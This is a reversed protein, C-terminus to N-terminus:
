YKTYYIMTRNLMTSIIVFLSRPIKAPCFLGQEHNKWRPYLNVRALVITHYYSIALVRKNWYPHIISGPRIRSWGRTCHLFVDPRQSSAVLYLNELYPIRNVIPFNARSYIKTDTDIDPFFWFGVDGAQTASSKPLCLKTTEVRKTFLNVMMTHLRPWHEAATKWGRNSPAWRWKRFCAKPKWMAPRTAPGISLGYKVHVHGTGIEVTFCRTIKYQIDMEYVDCM